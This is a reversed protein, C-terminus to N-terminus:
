SGPSENYKKILEFVRDKYESHDRLLQLDEDTEIEAIVAARLSALKELFDMAESFRELRSSACAANFLLSTDLPNRAFGKSFVDFAALLSQAGDFVQAAVAYEDM